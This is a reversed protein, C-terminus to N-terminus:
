RSLTGCEQLFPVFANMADPPAGFYGKPRNNGLLKAAACAVDPRKLTEAAYGLVNWAAVWREPTNKTQVAAVVSMLTAYAQDGRRALKLESPKRLLLEPDPLDLDACYTLFESAPGAGIVSGILVRALDTEFGAGLSLCAAMLECAWTSTRFSPWAKSQNQVEDPCSQVLQPRRQVFASHLANARHIHKQWDKPLTLIDPAPFGLQRQEDWWKPPPNWDFHAFRNALPASLDNGAEALEPPNM